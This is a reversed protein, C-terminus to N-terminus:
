ATTPSRRRVPRERRRPRPQDARREVRNFRSTATSTPTTTPTTSATSAREHVDCARSWSSQVNPRFAYHSRGSRCTASSSRTSRPRRPGVGNVDDGFNFGYLGDSHSENDEFRVFPLTRIDRRRRSGDPQRVPLVPDFDSRSARDRLPLRVPRERLRRQPHVHQPQQGVLLRRRREPRVAAGAEAAAQRALAQVALNRDLM